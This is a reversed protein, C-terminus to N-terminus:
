TSTGLSVLFNMLHGFFCSLGDAITLHNTLEVIPTDIISQDLHYSVQGEKFMNFFVVYKLFIQICIM